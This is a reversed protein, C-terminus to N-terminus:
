TIRRRIIEGTHPDREVAGHPMSAPENRAGLDDHSHQGPPPENGSDLTQNAMRLLQNASCHFDGLRLPEDSDIFSQRLPQWDPIGASAPLSPAQRWSGADSACDTLFLRGDDTVLLEAHRRAVSPDALVIDAHPSRGIVYTRM